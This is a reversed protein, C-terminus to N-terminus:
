PMKLAVNNMPAAVTISGPMEGKDAINIECFRLPISNGTTSINM